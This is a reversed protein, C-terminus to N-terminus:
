DNIVDGRENLAYSEVNVWEFSPYTKLNQMIKVSAKTKAISVQQKALNKCEDISTATFSVCSGLEKLAKAFNIEVRFPNKPSRISKTNM